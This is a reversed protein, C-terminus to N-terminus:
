AARFGSILWHTIALIMYVAIEVAIAGYLTALTYPTMKFIEVGYGNLVTVISSISFFLVILVIFLMPINLLLSLLRRLGLNMDLLYKPRFLIFDERFGLPAHKIRRSIIALPLVFALLILIEALPFLATEAVDKPDNVYDPWYEIEASTKFGYTGSYLVAINYITKISLLIFCIITITKFTRKM